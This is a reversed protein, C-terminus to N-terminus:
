LFNVYCSPDRRLLYVKGVQKAPKMHDQIIQGVLDLNLISHLIEADSSNRKLEYKLNSLSAMLREAPGIKAGISNRQLNPRPTMGYQQRRKGFYFKNDLVHADIDMDVALPYAKSLMQEWDAYHHYDEIWMFDQNILEPVIDKVGASESLEIGQRTGMWSELKGSQSSSINVSNLLASLDSHGSSSAVLEDIVTKNNMKAYLYKLLRIENNLATMMQSVQDEQIAHRTRTQLKYLNLFGNLLEFVEPDVNEEMKHKRKTEKLLKSVFKDLNDLYTKPKGLQGWLQDQIYNNEKFSIEPQYCNIDMFQNIDLALGHHGMASLHRLRIAVDGMPKETDCTIGEKLLLYVPVVKNNYIMTSDPKYPLDLHSLNEASAKREEITLEPDALAWLDQRAIEKIPNHLDVMAGRQTDKFAPSVDLDTELRISWYIEQLRNADEDSLFGNPHAIANLRKLLRPFEAHDYLKHLCMAWVGRILQDSSLERRAFEAAISAVTEKGTNAMALGYMGNALESETAVTWTKSSRLHQEIKRYLLVDGIRCQAFGYAMNLLDSVSGGKIVKNATAAMSKIYPVSDTWLKTCEKDLPTLKDQKVGDPIEDNAQRTWLANPSWNECFDTHRINLASAMACAMRSINHDNLDYPNSNTEPSYFFQLDQMLNVSPFTNEVIDNYIKDIRDQNYFQDRSEFDEANALGAKVMGEQVQYISTRINVQSQLFFNQQQREIIGAYQARIEAIATKFNEGANIASSIIGELKCLEESIQDTNTELLSSIADNLPNEYKPQSTVRNLLQLILDHDKHGANSLGEIINAIHDPPLYADSSLLKNLDEMM